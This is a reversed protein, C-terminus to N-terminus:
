RGSRVPRGDKCLLISYATDAHYEYIRDAAELLILFGPTTERRYNMEPDPCDLSTDGWEVEEVSVIRIEDTSGLAMRQQLNRLARDVLSQAAPPVPGDRPPAPAAAAGGDGTPGADAEAPPAPPLPRPFPAPSSCAAAALLATWALWGSRQM